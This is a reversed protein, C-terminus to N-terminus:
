TLLKIDKGKLTFMFDPGEGYSGVCSTMVGWEPCGRRFGSGPNECAAARGLQGSRTEWAWETCCANNENAVVSIWYKLGGKLTARCSKPIKVAFSGDNDIGTLGDCEAVLSGPLGMADRYFLVNESQAPNSNQAYVGAAEVERIKWKHGRPVAFDDAGYSDFSDFDHTFNTSLVAVGSDDSNQDYLTVAGPMASIARHVESRIHTVPFRNAAPSASVCLVLASLSVTTLFFVKGSM